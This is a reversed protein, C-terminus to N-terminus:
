SVEYYAAFGETGTFQMAPASTGPSGVGTNSPNSLQWGRGYTAIGMLLKQKPMGSQAWFNMSYASNFNTTDGPASFLPSNQGTVTEWTGHFDYTMVNVFDLHPAIGAIDYGAAATNM